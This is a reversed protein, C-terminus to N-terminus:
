VATEKDEDEPGKGTLIYSILAALVEEFPEAPDDAMRSGAHIGNALAGSSCINVFIVRQHGSHPNKRWWTIWPYPFDHSSNGKIFGM